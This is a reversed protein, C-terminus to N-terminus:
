RTVEMFVDELSTTMPVLATVEVDANVLQKNLSGSSLNNLNVRLRGAEGAGIVEIGEVEKLAAELAKPDTAGVEVQNNASHSKLLEEVTGEARLTGKQIIGVRNCIAQVEALLHSSIFVTIQENLALSRILDRVEAMGKPDLGNTPEDLFLLEPDELLM